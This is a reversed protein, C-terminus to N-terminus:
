TMSRQEVVWGVTRPIEPFDGHYIKAGAVRWFFVGMGSGPFSTKM